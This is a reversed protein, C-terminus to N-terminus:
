RFHEVFARGPADLRQQLRASLPQEPSSRRLEALYALFEERAPAPGHILFHVWAWADRYEADGMETLDRKRELTELAPVLAQQANRRVGPLFPHSALRQSRAVEHYKALGEDLWIPVNKLSAHLLAHTSEHRLDIELTSSRALLVKGPGRGKIYLAKRYPVGPFNQALYRRYTSEDRFLYVEVAEAPRPIALTRALDEELHTLDGLLHEYDKLPFDARCIFPGAVRVDTWTAPEAARIAGAIASWLGLLGCFLAIPCRIHVM